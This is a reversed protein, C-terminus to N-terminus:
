VAAVEYGIWDLDAKVKELDTEGTLMLQILQTKHDAKIVTVGPLNSLTFTVTRECGACHMTQSGVVQLTIKPPM